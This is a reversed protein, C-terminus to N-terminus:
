FVVGRSNRVCSIIPVAYMLKKTFKLKVGMSCVVTPSIVMLRDVSAKYAVLSLKRPKQESGFTCILRKNILIRVNM